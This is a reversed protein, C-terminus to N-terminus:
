EYMIVGVVQVHRVDYGNGNGKEIVTAIPM